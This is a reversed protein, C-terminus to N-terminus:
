GDQSLELSNLKFEGNENSIFIATWEPPTFIGGIDDKFFKIVITGGKNFNVYYYTDDILNNETIDIALNNIFYKSYDKLASHSEYFNDTLLEKLSTEDNNKAATMVNDIINCLKQHNETVLSYKDFVEIDIKNTKENYTALYHENVAEGQNITERVLNIGDNEAMTYSNFKLNNEVAAGNKDLLWYESKNPENAVFFVGNYAANIKEDFTIIFDGDLTLYASTGNKHQAHILSNSKYIISCIFDIIIENKDSVLAYKYSDRNELLVYFIGKDTEIEQYVEYKEWLPKEIESSEDILGSSEETKPSSSADSQISEDSIVGDTKCAFLTLIILMFIFILVAKKM